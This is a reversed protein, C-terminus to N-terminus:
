MINSSFDSKLDGANMLMLSELFTRINSVYNAFEIGKASEPAPAYGMDRITDAIALAALIIKIPADDHAQSYSYQGRIASIAQKSDEGWKTKSAAEVNTM